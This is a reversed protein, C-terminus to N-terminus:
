TENKPKARYIVIIQGISQILEAETSSCIATSIDKRSQRDTSRIKVKILEHTSLALQIENTVADTLGSQGILIVPKLAHAQARFKKIDSPNV